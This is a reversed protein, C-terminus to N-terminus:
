RRLQEPHVRRAGGAIRCRGARLRRRGEPHRLDDRRRRHVQAAPHRRPRRAARGPAVLRDRVRDSLADLEAYTLSAGGPSACRRGRGSAVRRRRRASRTLGTTTTMSRGASAMKSRVLKEISAMSALNGADLDNAEFEVKFQEELFSVLKLTSLSDLIGSEKLETDDTLNTPDEGPLFNDLIFSARNAINDMAPDGILRNDYEHDARRNSEDITSVHAALEEYLRDAILRHGAPTPIITGRRSACRPVSSEPFVDFLDILPLGAQTSPRTPQPVTPPADDIVANLGLSWRCSAM